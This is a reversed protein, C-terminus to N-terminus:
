LKLGSIAITLVAAPKRKYDIVDEINSINDPLAAGVTAGNKLGVPSLNYGFGFGIRVISKYSLSPIVFFSSANGGPQMSYGIGLGVGYEKFDGFSAFNMLAMAGINFKADDDQESAVIGDKVSFKQRNSQFVLNVVPVVEFRKRVYLPLVVAVQENLLERDVNDGANVKTIVLTVTTKKSDKVPVQFRIIKDQKTIDIIKGISAALNNDLQQFAQKFLAELGPQTGVAGLNFAENFSGDDIAAQLMDNLDKELTGSNFHGKNPSIKQINEIAARFGFGKPNTIRDFAEQATEPHDSTKIAERASKIEGSLTTLAAKYEVFKSAPANALPARAGTASKFHDAIEPMSTILKVLDAFQSSYDDVIDVDETKIEYKYFFPNPNAVAITVIGDVGRVITVSERSLNQLRDNQRLFVSESKEGHYIRLDQGSLTQQLSVAMVLILLKRM